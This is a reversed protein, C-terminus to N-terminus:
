EVLSPERLLRPSLHRKRIWKTLPRRLIIRETHRKRQPRPGTLHSSRNQSGSSRRRVMLLLVVRALRCLRLWNPCAEKPECTAGISRKTVESGDANRNTRRRVGYSAIQEHDLYIAFTMSEYSVREQEERDRDREREERM